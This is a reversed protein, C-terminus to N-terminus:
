KLKSLAARTEDRMKSFGKLFEKTMACATGCAKMEDAVQKKQEPSYDEVAPLAL